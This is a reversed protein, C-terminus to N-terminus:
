SSCLRISYYSRLLITPVPAGSQCWSFAGGSSSRSKLGSTLTFCVFDIIQSSRVTKLNTFFVFRAPCQCVERILLWPRTMQVGTIVQSQLSRGCIAVLFIERFLGRHVSKAVEPGAAHSGSMEASVLKM